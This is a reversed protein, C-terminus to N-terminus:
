SFIFQFRRIDPLYGSFPYTPVKNLKIKSIKNIANKHTESCHSNLFVMFLKQSSTWTLVKQWFLQSCFFHM